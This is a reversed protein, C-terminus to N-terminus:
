LSLIKCRRYLLYYVFSVTCNHRRYTPIVTYKMANVQM